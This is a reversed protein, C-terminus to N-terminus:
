LVLLINPQKRYVLVVLYISGSIHKKLCHERIRFTAFYFLQVAANQLQAALM